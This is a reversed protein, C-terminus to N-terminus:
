LQSYRESRQSGRTFDLGEAGLKTGQCRNSPGRPNSSVMPDSAGAACPGEGFDGFERVRLGRQSAMRCAMALEYDARPVGLQRVGLNFPSYRGFDPEDCLHWSASMAINRVCVYLLGMEYVANRPCRRIAVPIGEMVTRFSSIDVAADQYPTPRGFVEGVDAPGALAWSEQVLHWAFLHGSKFMSRLRERGYWSITIANRGGIRDRVYDNVISEPVKGSRDRVVVLVDIDSLEDDDGRAVSGFIRISLINGAICGNM